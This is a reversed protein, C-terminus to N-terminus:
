PLNSALASIGQWVMGGVGALIALAVPIVLLMMLRRYATLHSSFELAIRDFRREMSEFRREMTDFRQDIAKFGLRVERQFGDFRQDAGDFRQDVADFRRDIADFRRGIAEFKAAVESKFSELAVQLGEIRSLVQKKADEAMQVGIRKSETVMGEAVTYAEAPDAGLRILLAVMPSPNPDTSPAAKQKM